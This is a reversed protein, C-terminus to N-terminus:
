RAHHPTRNSMRVLAARINVPDMNTVVVQPTMFMPQDIDIDPLVLLCRKWGKCYSSVRDHALRGQRVADTPTIGRRMTVFLAPGAVLSLVAIDNGDHFTTELRADSLYPESKLIQKVIELLCVRMISAPLPTVKETARVLGALGPAAATNEDCRVCRLFWEPHRECAKQVERPDAAAFCAADLWALAEEFAGVSAFVDPFERQYRGPDPEGSQERLPSALQVREGDCWIAACVHPQAGPPEYQVLKLHHRSRAQTSAAPRPNM